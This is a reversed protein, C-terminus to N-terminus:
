GTYVSKLLTCTRMAFFSFTNKPFCTLQLMTFVSYATPLEKQNKTRLQFKQGGQNKFFQQLGRSTTESASLHYIELYVYLCYLILPSVMKNMNSLGLLKRNETSKRDFFTTYSKFLLQTLSFFCCQMFRHQKEM